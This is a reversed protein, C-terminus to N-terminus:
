CGLYDECNLWRHVLSIFDTLTNQDTWVYSPNQEKWPHGANAQRDYPHYFGQGPAAWGATKFVAEVPSGSRGKPWLNTARFTANELDWFAGTPSQCGYGDVNWRVLLRDPSKDRSAASVWTYVCPWDEESFDRELSWQGKSVGILFEASRLDAELLRM